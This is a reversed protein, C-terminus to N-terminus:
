NVFQATQNLLDRFPTVHQLNYSTIQPLECLFICSNRPVPLGKPPQHFRIVHEHGFIRKVKEGAALAASPIESSQGKTLETEEPLRKTDAQRLGRVGFGAMARAAVSQCAQEIRLWSSSSIRRPADTATDNM